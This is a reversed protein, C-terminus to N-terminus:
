FYGIVRCKGGLFKRGDTYIRCLDAGAARFKESQKEALARTDVWTTLVKRGDMSGEHFIQKKEDTM